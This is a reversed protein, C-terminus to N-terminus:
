IETTIKIAGLSLSVSVKKLAIRQKEKQCLIESYLGPQNGQDEQRLRESAPIVLM